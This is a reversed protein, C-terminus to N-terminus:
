FTFDNCNFGTGALKVHTCACVGWRWETAQDMRFAALILLM